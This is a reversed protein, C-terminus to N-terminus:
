FLLELDTLKVKLGNHPTCITRCLRISWYRGDYWVHVLDMMINPFLSTRFVKVYFKLMSTRSRSRLAMYPTPSPVTYIKPGIGIMMGFM